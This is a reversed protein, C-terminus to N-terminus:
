RRCRTSPHMWPFAAASSSGFRTSYPGVHVALGCLNSRVVARLEATCFFLAKM